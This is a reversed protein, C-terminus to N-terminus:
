IDLLNKYPNKKRVSHETVKADATEYYNESQQSPPRLHESIEIIDSERFWEITGISNTERHTYLELKTSSEQTGIGIILATNLRYSKPVILKENKNHLKGRMPFVLIRNKPTIVMRGRFNWEGQHFFAVLISFHKSTVANYVILREGRFDGLISFIGNTATSLLQVVTNNDDIIEMTCTAGNFIGFSDSKNGIRIRFIETPKLAMVLPKYSITNHAPECSEHDVGTLSVAFCRSCKKLNLPFSCSGTEHNALGCNLCQSM